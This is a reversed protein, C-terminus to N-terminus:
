NRIEIQPSMTLIVVDPSIIFKKTPIIWLKTPKSGPIEFVEHLCFFSDHIHHIADPYLAFLNTGDFIYTVVHKTSHSVKKYCTEPFFERLKNIQFFQIRLIVQLSRSIKAQPLSFCFL